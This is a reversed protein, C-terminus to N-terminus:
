SRTCQMDKKNHNMYETVYRQLEDTLQLVMSDMNWRLRMLYQCTM